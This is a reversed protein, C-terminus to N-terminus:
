TCQRGDVELSAGVFTGNQWQIDSVRGTHHRSCGEVDFDFSELSGQQDYQYNTYTVSNGQCGAIRVGVTGSYTLRVEDCPSSGEDTGGGCGAASAVAVPIAIVVAVTTLPAAALLRRFLKAIM